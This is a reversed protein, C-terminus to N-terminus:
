NGAIINVVAAIDNANVVGDGDVDARGEYKAKTDTGAIVNVVAAIDNANVVGDGNVDGKVAPAAEDGFSVPYLEVVTADNMVYLTAFCTVDYKKSLDTPMTVVSNFQNYLIVNDATKDSIFYQQDAYEGTAEENKAITADKILLYNHVLDTGVEELQIAEPQVPTGKHDVVWTEANPVLEKIKAKGYETWSAEANVIVDGNEFTNNLNGYVLGYTGEADKVYLNNGAQFIATLEGTIKATAGKTLGYLEEINAVEPVAIEGGGALAVETILLQPNDNYTAVIGTVDYKVTLDAPLTVNFSNYGALTGAEDTINLNKNSIDSLTANKIILYEGWRNANVTNTKAETPAVPSNSKAAKFTSKELTKMEPGGNYTVKTGKFGGPIVDGNKYTQGTTGYICLYGSADKVYLNSGNVYYATVDGAIASVTNDALAAFAAIDKVGEVPEDGTNPDVLKIPLVRYKVPEGASQMAQTWYSGIVAYVDYTKTADTSKSFGGMGSYALATGSNDTITSATVTETNWTLNAGKILVYHAFLDADVDAVQIVEPEIPSNSSAAQFGSLPAALEPQGNYPTKTGIFGAPIVDGNKYTQGTAGYILAYGTADKVYLSNGNQALVTVPNTFKVVEEDDVDLYAAINAVETPAGIVYAAEAVESSKDGKIAIAKITTTANIAIPASYLKSSASPASGDLTYYISAGGTGCKLEVNFPTYYTGAAVSFTPALVVEEGAAGTTVVMNAFRYQTAASGRLVTFTVNTANGVWTLTRTTADLSLSGADATVEALVNPASGNSLVIKTMNASSTVTMTNGELKSASSGGYLRIEKSPANYSPQTSSNGKAFSLSVSGTAVPGVVDITTTETGYLAPFDFSIEDAIAYSSVLLSMLLLTFLKRM